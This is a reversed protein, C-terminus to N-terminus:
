VTTPKGGGRVAAGAAVGRAGLVRAVAGAVYGPDPRYPQPGGYAHVDGVITFPDSALNGTVAFPVAAGSLAPPIISPAAASPTPTAAATSASGPGSAPTPLPHVASLAAGPTAAVRCEAKKGGAVRTGEEGGEKTGGGVRIEATDRGLGFTYWRGTEATIHLSAPGATGSGPKAGAARLPEALAKARAAVQVASEATAVLVGRAGLARSWEEGTRLQELKLLARASVVPAPLRSLLAGHTAGEKSSGKAGGGEEKGGLLAPLVGSLGADLGPPALGLGEVSQIVTDTALGVKWTSAVQMAPPGFVPEASRGHTQFTTLALVPFPGGAPAPSAPRSPKSSFFSGFGGRSRGAAGEGEKPSGAVGVNARVWALFGNPTEPDASALASLWPKRYPGVSQSAEHLAALRAAHAPGEATTGSSGAAADDLALWLSQLGRFDVRYNHPEFANRAPELTRSRWSLASLAESYTSFPLARPASSASSRGPLASSGPVANVAGDAGASKGELVDVAALIARTKTDLAALASPSAALPSARLEAAAAARALCFRTTASAYASTASHKKVGGTEAGPQAQLLALVRAATMAAGDSPPLGAAELRAAVGAQAGRASFGAQAAAWVNAAGELAECLFHEWKLAELSQFAYELRTDLSPSWGRLEPFPELLVGFAAHSGPDDRFTFSTGGFRPGGKGSGSGHKVAPSASSSSGSGGTSGPFAEAAWRAAQLTHWGWRAAMDETIGSGASSGLTHLGVDRDLDLHPSYHSVLERKRLTAATLQLLAASGPTSGGGAADRLAAPLAPGSSQLHKIIRDAALASSAWHGGPQSSWSRAIWDSPPLVGGTADLRSGLVAHRYWLSAAIDAAGFAAPMLSPDLATALQPDAVAPGADAGAGSSGDRRRGRHKAHGVGGGSAAAAPAAVWHKPPAVLSLAALPAPALTNYRAALQGRLDPPFIPRGSPGRATGDQVGGGSSGRAKDLGAGSEAEVAARKAESAFQTAESVRAAVSQVPLYPDILVVGTVRSPNRLATKLTSAYNFHSSVLTATEAGLHSLLASLEQSQAESTVEVEAGLAPPPTWLTSALRAAPSADGGKGGSGGSVSDLFHSQVLMQAVWSLAGFLSGDRCQFHTSLSFPGVGNTAPEPRLPVALGAHTYSVVVAGLMRALEVQLARAAAITGANIVIIPADPAASGRLVCVNLRRGDDLSLPFVRPVGVPAEEPSIPLTVKLTSQASVSGTADLDLGEQVTQETEVAATTRRWARSGVMFLGTAAAWFWFGGRARPSRPGGSAAAALLRSQRATVSARLMKEKHGFCM